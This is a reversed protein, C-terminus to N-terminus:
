GRLSFQEHDCLANDGNCVSVAVKYSWLLNPLLGVADQALINGSM